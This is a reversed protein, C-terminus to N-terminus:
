YGEEKLNRLQHKSRVLLFQNSKKMKIKMADLQMVRAISRGFMGGHDSSLIM